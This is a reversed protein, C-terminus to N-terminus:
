HPKIIGGQHLIHKNELNRIKEKLQSNELKLETIRKKLQFNEEKLDLVLNALEKKSSPNDTM